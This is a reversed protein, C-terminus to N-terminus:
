ASNIYSEELPIEEGTSLNRQYISIEKPTSILKIIGYPLYGFINNELTLNKFLFAFFNNSNDYKDKFLFKSIDIISDTGNAYGFAM